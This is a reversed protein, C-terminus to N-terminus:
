WGLEQGQCVAHSSSKVVTWAGGCAAYSGPGGQGSVAWFRWHFVASLSVQSGTIGSVL